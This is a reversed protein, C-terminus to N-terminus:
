IVVEVNINKIIKFYTRLTELSLIPRYIICYIKTYNGLVHGFLMSVNKTLTMETVRVSFHLYTSTDM